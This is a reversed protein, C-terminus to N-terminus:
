RPPLGRWPADKGSGTETRRSSCAREVSPASLSRVTMTDRSFFEARAVLMEEIYEPDMLFISKPVLPWLGPLASLGERYAAPPLNELFNRLNARLSPKNRPRFPIFDPDHFM